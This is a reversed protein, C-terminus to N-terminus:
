APATTNQGSTRSYSRDDRSRALEQPPLCASLAVRSHNAGITPKGGAIAAHVHYGCPQCQRVGTRDYTGPGREVTRGPGCHRIHKGARHVGHNRGSQLSRCPLLAKQACICVARGAARSGLTYHDGIPRFTADCQQVPLRGPQHHSPRQTWRAPSPAAWLRPPKRWPRQRKRIVPATKSPVRHEALDSPM